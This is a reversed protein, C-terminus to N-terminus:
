QTLTRENGEYENRLEDARRNAAALEARAASLLAEQEDRAALFREIREEDYAAERLAEQRVSEVLADLDEGTAFASAPLLAAILAIAKLERIM